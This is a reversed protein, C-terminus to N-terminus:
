FNWKMAITPFIKVNSTGGYFNKSIEVESGFALHDTVNTWIQPETLLVMQKGSGDAKDESWIDMFGDITIKGELTTKTWVFTIQADPADSNYKMRYLLDTNLTIFGLNIPYSVGGLWVPGLPIRGVPTGILGDNYQVTASLNGLPLNIYRAIELYSLSASKYGDHRYDYDVDVFWYTAGYKDPKFMELTSTFYQREERFDYHLQFNQAFTAGTVLMLVTFFAVRKM